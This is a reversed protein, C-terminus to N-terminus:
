VVAVMKEQTSFARTFPREFLGLSQFQDPKLTLNKDYEAGYRHIQTSLMQRHQLHALIHFHEHVYHGFLRRRRLGRLLDSEIFSERKIVTGNETRGPRDHLVAAQSLVDRLFYKQPQILM